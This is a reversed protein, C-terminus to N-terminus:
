NGIPEQDVEEPQILYVQPFQITKKQPPSLSTVGPHGM